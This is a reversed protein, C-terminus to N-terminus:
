ETRDPPGTRDPPDSPDPEDSAQHPGLRGSSSPSDAPPGEGAPGPHPGAADYSHPPRAGDRGQANPPASSSHSKNILWTMQEVRESYSFLPPVCTTVRQTLQTASPLTALQPVPIFVNEAPDAIRDVM